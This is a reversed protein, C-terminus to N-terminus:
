CTQDMLLEIRASSCYLVNLELMDLVDTEDEKCFVMTLAVAGFGSFAKEGIKSVLKADLVDASHAERSILKRLFTDRPKPKHFTSLDQNIPLHRSTRINQRPHFMKPLPHHPKLPPSLLLLPYNHHGRRSPNNLHSVQYM